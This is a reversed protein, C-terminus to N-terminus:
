FDYTKNKVKNRQYVKTKIPEIIYEEDSEDYYKIENNHFNNDNTQEEKKIEPERGGCGDFLNGM